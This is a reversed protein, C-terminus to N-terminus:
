SVESAPVGDSAKLAAALEATIGQVLNRGVAKAERADRVHVQGISVHIPPLGGGGRGGRGKPTIHVTEEGNEGVGFVTPNKVRFHGGKAYWGAFGPRRGGTAFGQRFAVRAGAERDGLAPIGPREWQEMFIRAAAEPSGAKNLSPLLAQGGHRLMFDTQFAPSEWGRGGAAKLSALSIAGATFGWLGGGGTGEAGPDMGSERYANGIIGAAGIKNAGRRFLERAIQREVSSRSGGPAAFSTGGGRGRKGLVENVRKSMGAAITANASDAIVGPLGGIGSKLSQLHIQPTAGGISGMRRGGLPGLLGGQAGALLQVHNVEGPDAPWFPRYLGVAKLQAETVRNMSSLTPSGVGIDAAEGRTHPDNSFGGVSVSHAPSRYGSIVYVTDHLETSLRRLDRLIQPEKGVNMNVGPDLSVSGGALARGGLAFHRFQESHARGERAVERGLTTGYPALLRDVKRETHRNTILTEGPAAFNGGGLNVTDYLGTGSLYGGTARQSRVNNISTQPLGHQHAQVNQANLANTSTGTLAEHSIGQVETPSYGLRRLTETLRQELATQNKNVAALERQTGDRALEVQKEWSKASTDVIQGHIVAVNQGMERFRKEITEAIGDVAGKLKPNAAQLEYAWDLAAQGFVHSTAPSNMGQLRGEVRGLASRAAGGVGHRLDVGYAGQIDGIIGAGREANASHAEQNVGQLAKKLAAVRSEREEDSMGSDGIGFPLHIGNIASAIGVPTLSVIEGGLRGKSFFSDSPLGLTRAIQRQIQQRAEAPNGTRALTRSAIHQAQITGAERSQAATKPASYLGFTASSLGAQVKQEFGGPQAVASLGASAAAYPLFSAGFGRAFRGASEVTAGIRGGVYGREQLPLAIPGYPTKTLRPSFEGAATTRAPGGILVPAGGLMAPAAGGGLIMQGAAGKANRIGAGAGLLFPLGAPSLLGLQDLTSLLNTGEELMPTLLRSIKWLAGTITGLGGAIKETGTVANNFFENVQQPHRNIWTDWKDLQKTLDDVMSTGPKRGAGLLDGILGGGAGALRGWAKLDGVFSGIESRTDQLDNTSTKWGEVWQDLFVVGEHFFPRGARAINEMTQLASESINEIHSLDSTAEQAMSEYFSRSRPDNLFGAFNNAQGRATQLLTNSLPALTPTLQRGLNVGRTAVGAVAEQGPRTARNFESSLATRARLFRGAGPAGQLAINYTALAQASAKSNPGTQIVEKQYAALAKSAEKMGKIAVISTPLALAGATAGAGIGTLGLAGAGLAAGGASGLLATAGGLLPPTAALAGAILPLGISGAFPIKVGNGFFSGGQSPGSSPTAVRGLTPSVGVQPHATQRGLKNLRAEVLEIQALAATIGDTNIQPTVRKKSLRDMKEELTDIAVESKAVSDLTQRETKSWEARVKTLSSVSTNGVSRLDREYAAAAERNKANFVDDVASGLKQMTLDTKEGESRIRRLGETAPRENLDFVGHVAM